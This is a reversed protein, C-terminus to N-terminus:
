IVAHEGEPAAHRPTAKGDCEVNEEASDCTRDAMMTEEGAKVMEHGCCYPPLRFPEQTIVSGCTVCHYIPRNHSSM